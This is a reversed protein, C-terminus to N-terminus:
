IKILKIIERAMCYFGFDNPHIGDVTAIDSEADSYFGSGDAFYVNKDGLAAAREYSELVVNRREVGWVRMYKPLPASAMVIPIQPNKRRVTEYFRFHRRRLEEANEANHDFDLVFASMACEAIHEAIVNEGHASGTAAMHPFLEVNPMEVKISVRESESEFVVRGGSTNTYLAAVGENVNEAVCRPLRKYGEEDSYPLGFVSFNSSRVDFFATDDKVNAAIAFNKDTELLKKAGVGM